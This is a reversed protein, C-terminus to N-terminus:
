WSDKGKVQWPHWTDSLTFSISADGPSIQPPSMLRRSTSLQLVLMTTSIFQFKVLYRFILCLDFWCYPICCFIYLNFSWPTTVTSWSVNVVSRGSIVTFYELRKTKLLVFRGISCNAFLLLLRWVFDNISIFTVISLDYLFQFSVSQSSAFRDSKMLVHLM